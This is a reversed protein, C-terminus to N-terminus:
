KRTMRAVGSEEDVVAEPLWAEAVVESGVLM